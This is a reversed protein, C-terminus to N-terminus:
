RGLLAAIGRGLRDPPRARRGPRGAGPGDSRGSAGAAPSGGRDDGARIQVSWHRSEARGDFLRGTEAPRGASWM